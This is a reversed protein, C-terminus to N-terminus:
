RGPERESGGDGTGFVVGFGRPRGRIAARVGSVDSDSIDAPVLPSL